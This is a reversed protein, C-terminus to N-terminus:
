QLPYPHAFHPQPPQPMLGEARATGPRRRAARQEGEWNHIAQVVRQALDDPSTFSDRIRAQSARERFVRQRARVEDPEILSAPLPFDETAIFVLRPLEAAIAAEYERETYSQESGEACSGYLHGVIGVFLDCKGVKDRCFDDADWDRAGFDEMRVCHYAADRYQTLDRATSSLFVTKVAM